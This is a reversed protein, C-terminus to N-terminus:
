LHKVPKCGTRLLTTGDVAASSGEDSLDSRLIVFSFSEVLVKAVSLDSTARGGLGRLILPSFFSGPPQGDPNSSLSM